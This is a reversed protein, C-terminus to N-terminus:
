GKSKEEGLSIIIFLGLSVLASYVEVPIGMVDSKTIIGVVAVLAGGIIASLAGKKTGRKWLIGGIVPIFVGATYM